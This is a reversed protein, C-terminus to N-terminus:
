YKWLSEPVVVWDGPQVVVDEELRGKELIQQVNIVRTESKGGNRRTLRVKRKDAFDVFGGASLIAGSVTLTEGAPIDYSGSRQVQGAVYVKGLSRTKNIVEASIIVTAHYYLHKELLGKIERALERCSKGAAHVLGLYPVELDGTDTITLARPADKDELVQFTIRDGPGLKQHDDLSAMWRLTEPPAAPINTQASSALICNQLAIGLAIACAKHYSM